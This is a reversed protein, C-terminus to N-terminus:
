ARKEEGIVRPAVRKDLDFIGDDEQWYKRKHERDEERRGGAGGMGSTSMPTSRPGQTSEAEGAVGAGTSGSGRPAPNAETTRIGSQGGNEEAPLSGGSPRGGGPVTRGLGGVAIPAPGTSPPGVPPAPNGVPPPTPTSVPNTPAAFQPITRSIDASSSQYQQMVRAAQQHAVASQTTSAIPGPSAIPPQAFSQAQVGSAPQAVNQPQPLSVPQTVSVPQPLPPTPPPVPMSSRATQLAEAQQSVCGSVIVANEGTTNTWTVLGTLNGRAQDAATGQWGDASAALATNLTDGMQRLTDSLKAWTGAVDTAGTLDVGNNVM